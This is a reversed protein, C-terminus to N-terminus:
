QLSRLSKENLKPFFIQNLCKTSVINGTDSRNGLGNWTHHNPSLYPMTNFTDKSGHSNLAADILPLDESILFQYLDSLFCSPILALPFM